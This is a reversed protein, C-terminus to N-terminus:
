QTWADAGIKGGLEPCEPAFVGWSCEWGPVVWDHLMWIDPLERKVGGRSRCEDPTVDEAGIVVGSKGSICLGGNANHQHWHDNPGAFGVPEGGPNFILYSLGIIKSDPRTGDFLLESPKDVNFPGVLGINTYHAGICPVFVTSMRYGAAEADKVTPYKAAVARAHAQQDALQVATPQDIAIQETPGRHSHGQADTISGESAPPGSKECPTNGTLAGAAAASHVHGDDAGGGHTHEGAYRPTLAVTTGIAVILSGALAGWLLMRPGTIVRVARGRARWLLSACGIVLLVELGTAILDPTGVDERTWSNPGFPAGITRSMVWIGIIGLNLLGLAFVRRSPFAVLAVALALQLWAMVAFALGHSWTETFHGPAFAAHLLAAGLAASALLLLQARPIAAPRATQAETEFEPPEERAEREGVLLTM